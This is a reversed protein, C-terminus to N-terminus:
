HKLNQYLFYIAKWYSPPTLPRHRNLHFDLHIRERIPFVRDVLELYMYDVWRDESCKWFLHRSFRWYEFHGIVEFYFYCFRSCDSLLYFSVQRDWSFCINSRFLLVLGNRHTPYACHIQWTFTLGFSFGKTILPDLTWYSIAWNM